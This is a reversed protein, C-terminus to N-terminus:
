GLSTEKCLFVWKRKLIEEFGEHMANKTIFKSSEQKRKNKNNGSSSGNRHLLQVNSLLKHANKRTKRELEFSTCNTTTISHPTNKETKQHQKGKAKTQIKYNQSQLEISSTKKEGFDFSRHLFLQASM